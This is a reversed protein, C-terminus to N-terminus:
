KSKDVVGTDSLTVRLAREGIEMVRRVGEALLGQNRFVGCHAQMARRLRLLSAVRAKLERERLPKYLYDFAGRKM